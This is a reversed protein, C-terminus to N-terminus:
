KSQTKEIDSINKWSTGFDTTKWVGGGTAGMYFTGPEHVTGAVATVRGGRSPGVLRYQLADFSVEEQGYIGDLVALFLLVLIM